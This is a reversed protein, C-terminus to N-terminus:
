NQVGSPKGNEQEKLAEMKSIISQVRQVTEVANPATPDVKCAQSFVNRVFVIEKQDFQIATEEKKKAM